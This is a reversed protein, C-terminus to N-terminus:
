RLNKLTTTAQNKKTFTDLKKQWGGEVGKTKTSPRPPGILLKAAAVPTEKVANRVYSVVSSHWSALHANCFDTTYEALHSAYEKPCNTEGVLIKLTVNRGPDKLHQEKEPHYPLRCELGGPQM